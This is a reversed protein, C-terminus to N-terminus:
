AAARGIRNYRRVGFLFVQFYANGTGTAGALQLDIFIQGGRAVRWDKGPLPAGNLIGVLDVYDDMLAYGSSDRLRGLFVGPATVTGDVTQVFGLRRCLFDSGWDIPVSITGTLDAATVSQSFLASIYTFQEDEYGSPTEPGEGAMWCPAMINQNPSRRYRALDSALRQPGPRASRVFFRDAGEFLLMIPQAVLVNEDVLTVTIKTGPPCELEESLLWRWSGYGAFTLVDALNSLLFRGDPLQIQVLLATAATSTTSIARLLFTTEGSIEKTITQSASAPPATFVVQIPIRRELCVASAGAPAIPRGCKSLVQDAQRLMQVDM